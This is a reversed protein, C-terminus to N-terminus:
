FHLTKWKEKSGRIKSKNDNYQMWESLRIYDGWEGRQLIGKGHIYCIRLDWPNLHLCKPPSM